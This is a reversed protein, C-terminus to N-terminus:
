AMPSIFPSVDNVSLVPKVYRTTGFFYLGFRGPLSIGLSVSIASHTTVAWPMM